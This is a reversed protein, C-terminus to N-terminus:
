DWIIKGSYYKKAIRTQESIELSALRIKWQQLSKLMDQESKKFSCKTGQCKSIRLWKCNGTDSLAICDPMDLMKLNVRGTSPIFNRRVFREM